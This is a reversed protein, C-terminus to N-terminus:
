YFKLINQSRLPMVYHHYNTFREMHNNV